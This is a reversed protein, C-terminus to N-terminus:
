KFLRRSIWLFVGVFVLFHLLKFTSPTVLREKWLLMREQKIGLSDLLTLRNDILFGVERCSFWKMEALFLWVVAINLTIVRRRFTEVFIMLIVVFLFLELQLFFTIFLMSPGYWFTTVFALLVVCVAHALVAVMCLTSCLFCRGALMFISSQISLTQAFIAVQGNVVLNFPGILFSRDFSYRQVHVALLSSNILCGVSAKLSNYMQLNSYRGKSLPLRSLPLSYMTWHVLRSPPGL